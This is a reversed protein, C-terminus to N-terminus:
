AGRCAGQFCATGAPCDLNRVCAECVGTAQNCRPREAPCQTDNLCAVCRGHAMDCFMGEVCDELDNCASCVNQKCGEIFGPCGNGDACPLVCVPASPSCVYPGVCGVTGRCPVCRKTTPECAPSPAACHTDTVCEVCEGSVDCILPARCPTSASCMRSGADEPFVVPVSGCGGLALLLASLRLTV